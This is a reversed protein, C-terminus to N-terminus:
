SSRGSVVKPKTFVIKEELGKTLNGSSDMFVFDVEFATGDYFTFAGSCMGHGVRIRGDEIPIYYTVVHGTKRNILTTKVLMESRDTAPNSFEVWSSPGCGFLQFSKDVEQPKGSLIPKETDQGQVVTYTIPARDYSYQNFKSISEYSDLDDIQLTYTVGADLTREPVLLAQTLEFRGVCVEKVILKVPKNRGILYIAHKDNLSSIVEQSGGYGELVFISNQKIEQTSPFIYLGSWACEAQTSLTSLCSILFSWIMWQKM